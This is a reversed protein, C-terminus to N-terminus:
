ISPNYVHIGCENKKSNKWRGSRITGEDSVKSTCPQCGISKYGEKVLPHEPLNHKKIYDTIEKFSWDALPNIKVFRNFKEIKKVKSRDLGHFRKRGNIWADYPELAKDLPIVKRIKCCLEPDTKYLNGNPDNSKLDNFDPKKIKINKLKLLTKIKKLYNLTEPFLKKTDLFIIPTNRDVKSILDLIVVSEAGFSSTVAIKKHFVKKIMLELLNIAELKSYKEYFKQFDYNNYKIM